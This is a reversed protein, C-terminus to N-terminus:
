LEVLENPMFYIQSIKIGVNRKIKCTMKFLVIKHLAIKPSKKLKVIYITKLIINFMKSLLPLCMLGIVHSKFVNIDNAKIKPVKNM